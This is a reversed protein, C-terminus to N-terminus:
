LGWKDMLRKSVNTRSYTSNQPDYMRWEGIKLDKPLWNGSNHGPLTLGDSPHDGVDTAGLKNRDLYLVEENDNGRWEVVALHPQTDVANPISITGDSPLTFVEWAGNDNTFAHNWDLEEDGHASYFATYKDSFFDRCEFIIFIDYPNAINSAWTTELFDNNTRKFLGAQTGNIDVATGSYSGTLDAGPSLNEKPNSTSFDYGNLLGPFGINLEWKDVLAKSVDTRSYTSNQPDYM